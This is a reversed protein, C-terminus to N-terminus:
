STHATIVWGTAGTARIHAGHEDRRGSLRGQSVLADLKATLSGEQYFKDNIGIVLAGGPRIVRVIDDLADAQVHGFSFVGVCSAGDYVGDKASMPPQNLNTEFLRAYAGTNEAQALMGPSFDCGDIVSFGAARLARGSLGSGCGVDLLRIAPGPDVLGAMAVACRQPQQYDHGSLEDDYSPAWEDYFARTQDDSRTEYAKKLFSKDAM